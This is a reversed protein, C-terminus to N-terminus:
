KGYLALIIMYLIFHRLKKFPSGAVAALRYAPAVYTRMQPLMYILEGAAKKKEESRGALWKNIFYKMLPALVFFLLLIAAISRLFIWLVQKSGAGSWIFIGAIFFLVGAFFLIRMLRKSKKKQGSINNELSNENAYRSLVEEKNVEIQRPIAAAWSGVVAGWLAYLALYIVIVWFAYSAHISLHFDKTIQEFFANVAQWLGKGFVLTMLILKQGASEVMALMGLLIAALKYSSIIRFLLAGMLGQFAVALYAPPPSHPSVLAKVMVVLITAQVIAKYDRNSFWAILSIIIVAFGGVFFGTMPIKLAFMIGGLGSESLAWLATLKQIANINSSREIPNM